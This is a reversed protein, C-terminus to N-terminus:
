ARCGVCLDLAGPQDLGQWEEHRGCVDVLAGLGSHRGPQGGGARQVPQPTLLAHRLRHWLLWCLLRLHGTHMEPVHQSHAALESPPCPPKSPPSLCTDNAADLSPMTSCGLLAFRWPSQQVMVKVCTGYACSPSCPAPTPLAAGNMPLAGKKGAQYDRVAQYVPSTTPSAQNTVGSSLQCEKPVLVRAAPQNLVPPCCLPRCTCVCTSILVPPRRTQHSRAHQALNIACMSFALVFIGRMGVCKWPRQRLADAIAAGGCVCGGGYRGLAVSPRAYPRPHCLWAAEAAPFLPM